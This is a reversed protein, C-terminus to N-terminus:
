LRVDDTFERSRDNRELWGPAGFVTRHVVPCDPAGLSLLTKAARALVNVIPNEQKWCKSV